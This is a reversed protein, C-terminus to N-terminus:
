FGDSSKVVKLNLARTNVWGRSVSYTFLRFSVELPFLPFARPCRSAHYHHDPNNTCSLLLLLFVKAGGRGAGVLRRHLRHMGCEGYYASSAVSVLLCSCLGVVSVFLDLIGLLRSHKQINSVGREGIIGGLVHQRDRLPM